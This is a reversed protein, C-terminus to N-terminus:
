EIGFQSIGVPFFGSVSFAGSGSVRKIVLYGTENVSPTFSVGETGGTAATTASALIVPNGYADPTGSYVYADYDAGVPLSVSLNVQSGAKLNARRAWVRRDASGSGFTTAAGASVTIDDPLVPLTVADIAADVNIFGYGEQIDKAGRNLTPDGSATGTERAVNTESATMSLLMKVKLVDALPQGGGTFSWSHGNKQMADIIVAAAGAVFPAAMSTGQMPAYDNAVADGFGGDSTNTDPALIQGELTSGGPAALDPKMDNDGTAHNGSAAVGESSYSTIQNTQSAAAVTIAYHARGPDDIARHGPSTSNTGDNGAAVVMVIGNTAATNVKNRHSELLGPNGIIGLSFNAVKIHNAVRNAVMHDIAADTWATDGVGSNNFVKYGAWQCEPAVGRFVNYGDGPGAFTMTNQVSYARTGSGATVWTAFPSYVRKYGAAPPNAYTVNSVALPSTAGATWSPFGAWAGATTSVLHGIEATGGGATDWRMTSSRTGIVGVSAPIIIPFLLGQGPSPAFTGNTTFGVLAPSTGIAAGTGTAIGAVHTGHGHYDLPSGEASDSTDLWLRMRGNLDSHSNDVGTDFIAITVTTVERDGSYGAQWVGPRVRGNQTAVELNHMAMELPEVVGLLSAGMAAPLQDVNKLPITGIWGYSVSQFVHEFDGGAKVFADIQAQTIQSGFVLEVSIRADLEAQAEARRTAPVDDRALVARSAALRGEIADDVRSGNTDRDRPASIIPRIDPEPPPVVRQPQGFSPSADGAFVLALVCGAGLLHRVFPIKM